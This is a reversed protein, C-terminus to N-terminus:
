GMVAGEHCAVIAQDLHLLHVFPMAPRLFCRMAPSLRKSGFFMRTLSAVYGLLKPDSSIIRTM